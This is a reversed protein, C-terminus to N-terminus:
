YPAEEGLLPAQVPSAPAPSRNTEVGLPLRAQLVWRGRQMLVSCSGDLLTLREQVGTLGFGQRTSKNDRRVNSFEGVVDDAGQVVSFTCRTGKKAHKLVNNAAEVAIAALTQCRAASLKTIRLDVSVSFGEGRLRDAQAEM